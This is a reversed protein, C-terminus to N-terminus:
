HRWPGFTFPAVRLECGDLEALPQLVGVDLDVRVAFLSPAVVNKDFAEASTYIVFLGIQVGGISHRDGEATNGAIQREIVCTSRMSQQAPLHGILCIVDVQLWDQHHCLLARFESVSHSSVPRIFRAVM